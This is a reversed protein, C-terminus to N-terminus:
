PNAQIPIPTDEVLRGDRLRVLRSGIRAAEASHTAMILTTGHQQCLAQLLDLIAEGNESDLNGTPEDAILVQPQHVLARAIAVRQMEGGSLQAPYFRARHALGVQDLVQVVQQQMTSQATHRQLQLPLAVNEAVTLTPLLNFFQFVFGIRQRRILTRADDDLTHLPADGLWLQGHTPRDIAGLLNLLTSKGCGSPGMLILREGTQVSLSVEHLAEVGLDDNLAGYRKQVGQLRFLADPLPSSTLAAVM